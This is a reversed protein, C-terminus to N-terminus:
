IYIQFNECICLTFYKTDLITIKITGYLKDIYPLLNIESIDEHLGTGILKAYAEKLTWIKCFTEKNIVYKKEEISFYPCFLSSLKVKNSNLIDIGVQNNKNYYLVVFIDHHSISFEIKKNSKKFYPKGNEGYYINKDELSLHECLKMKLFYSMKFIKQSSQTLLRSYKTELNTPLTISNYFKSDFNHINEILLM